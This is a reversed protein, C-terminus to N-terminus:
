PDCILEFWVKLKQFRPLAASEFILNQTKNIRSELSTESTMVLGGLSLALSVSM